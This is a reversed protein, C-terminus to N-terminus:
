RKEIMIGSLTRGSNTGIRRASFYTEHQCRSCIGSRLINDPNIGSELLTVICAQRLDIHKRPQRHLIIEPSNPFESQFREVVEDGVEFCEACISPGIFVKIHKPDAGHKKMCEVTRATIRGVTGKWGSHVAAIVQADADTLLLPVCDATNVCLIIGPLKTVVADINELSDCDVPINDIFAINLSHTQSPIVLREKNTNFHNCLKNLCDNIHDTCDGTYHCVNFSSYNNGDITEGRQSFFVRVSHALTNEILPIPSNTM